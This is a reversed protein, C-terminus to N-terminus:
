KGCEMYSAAYVYIDGALDESEQAIKVLDVGCNTKIKEGSKDWFPYFSYDKHAEVALVAKSWRGIGDIQVFEGTRIRKLMNIGSSIREAKFGLGIKRLDNITIKELQELTPFGYLGNKKYGFKKVFESFVRKAQRASIVQRIVTKIFAEEKSIPFTPLVYTNMVYDLFECSVSQVQLLYDLIVKRDVRREGIIKKEDCGIISFFSSEKKNMISVVRKSSNHNFYRSYVNREPVKIFPTCIGDEPHPYLKFEM